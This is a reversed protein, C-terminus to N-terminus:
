EPSITSTSSHQFVIKEIRQPNVNRTFRNLASTKISFLKILNILFFISIM